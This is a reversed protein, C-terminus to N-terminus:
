KKSSTRRIIIIDGEPYDSQKGEKEKSSKGAGAGQVMLFLLVFSLSIFFAPFMAKDGLQDLSYLPQVRFRLSYIKPLSRPRFNLATVPSIVQSQKGYGKIYYTLLCSSSTASLQAIPRFAEAFIGLM